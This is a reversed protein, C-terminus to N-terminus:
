DEKSASVHEGGSQKIEKIAADMDKEGAYQVHDHGEKSYSISFQKQSLARHGFM